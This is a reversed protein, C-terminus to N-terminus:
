CVRLTAAAAILRAGRRELEIAQGHCALAERLVKAYREAVTGRRGVGAAGILSLPRPWSLRRALVIDAAMGALVDGEGAGADLAAVCADAAEFAAVLPDPNESAQMLGDFAGALARVGLAEALAALSPGALRAPRTSFERWLRYLRGVPGPDDNPRTLHHADRLGAEDERHRLQRASAAAARLAQRARLVGLWAPDARNLRDIALLVAGAAFNEAGAGPRAATQAWPPLPQCVPAIEPAVTAKTARTRRSPKSPAAVYQLSDMCTLM